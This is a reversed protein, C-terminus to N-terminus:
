NENVYIEVWEGEKPLATHEKMEKTFVDGKSKHDWGSFINWYQSDFYTWHNKWAFRSTGIKHIMYKTIM